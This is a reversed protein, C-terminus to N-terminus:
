CGLIFVLSFSQTQGETFVVLVIDWVVYLEMFGISDVECFM